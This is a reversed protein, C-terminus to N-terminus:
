WLASLSLSQLDSGPLPSPNAAHLCGSSRHLLTGHAPSSFVVALPIQSSTQVRLLLLAGNNSPSLLHPLGGYSDREWPEQLSESPLAGRTCAGNAPAIPFLTSKTCAIPLWAGRIHALPLLPSLVNCRRKRSRKATPVFWLLCRLFWLPTHGVVVLPRHVPEM